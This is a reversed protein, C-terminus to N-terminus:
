PGNGTETSQGGRGAWRLKDVQPTDTKFGAAMEQRASNIALAAINRVELLLVGETDTFELVGPTKGTYAQKLKEAERYDMTGYISEGSCLWIIYDKVNVYGGKFPM